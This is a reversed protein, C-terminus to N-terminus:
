HCIDNHRSAAGLHHTTDAAFSGFRLQQDPTSRMTEAEPEPTVDPLEGPRGVQNEGASLSDQEYMATEPVAM